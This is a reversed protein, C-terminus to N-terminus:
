GPNAGRDANQMLQAMRPNHWQNRSGHTAGIAAGNTPQAKPQATSQAMPARWLNRWGHFAGNTAAYTACDAASFLIAQWKTNTACYTACEAASFVVAHYQSRWRVRRGCSCPSAIPQAMSLAGSPRFRFTRSNRALLGLMCGPQCNTAGCSANEVVSPKFPKGSTAGYTARRYASFM